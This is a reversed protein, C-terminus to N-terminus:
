SAGINWSVVRIKESSSSSATASQRPWETTLLLFGILFVFLEWSRLRVVSPLLLVGWVIPPAVSVWEGWITRDGVATYLVTLVGVFVCLGFALWRRRKESKDGM